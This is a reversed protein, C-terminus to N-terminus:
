HSCSYFAYGAMGGKSLVDLVGYLVDLEIHHLSLLKFKDLISVLPYICWLVVFVVSAVGDRTRLEVPRSLDLPEIFILAIAASFCLFSVVWLGLWRPINNPNYSIESAFGLIITATQLLASGCALATAVDSDHEVRRKVLEHVHVTMLPLTFLWDWYRLRTVSENGAKAGCTAHKSRECKILYYHYAAISNVVASLICGSEASAIAAALAAGGTSLLCIIVVRYVEAADSGASRPPWKKGHQQGKVAVVYM